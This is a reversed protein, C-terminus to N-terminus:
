MLPSLLRMFAQIFAKFIGPTAEKLTIEKSQRLTNTFDKEMDLVAKSGYIYTGCEFHHYLSRYDMNITGNTGIMDDCVFMKSHLFGPTYEYIKVGAKLLPYYYSQTLMFVMKKDPIAPTVIVVDVGRKSALTLATMLENDVILYPTFIHVYRTSQNIINLYVNEGVNEGDLPSDCYPQVYGDSEIEGSGICPKFPMLTEDTKRFANWLELFMVTFSWVGDGELRIGADKWHGFRVKKNIYEDAINIGGSHAIYGDIVLIKRHDRNNMIVSTLPMFKNFAMCKIGQAELKQDYGLPLLNLSGFDDYIVRVDVGEAVKKKLLKLIQDWMEGFGIIFYEMFIFREAKEIDKIMQAFAEEGVSYHTVKTNKYVPFGATKSLYRMQGYVNRDTQILEDIIDPDQELSKGLRLNSKELKSAMSFVSLKTGFLLYALGGFLPFVLIPIIWAIKIAPNKDQKIIWLVVVISLLNLFYNIFSYSDVIRLLLLGLWVLQVLICIGFAVGRSFLFRKVKKIAKIITNMIM